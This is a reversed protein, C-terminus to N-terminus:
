DLGNFIIGAQAATSVGVLVGTVAITLIAMIWLRLRRRMTVEEISHGQHVHPMRLGPNMPHTTSM